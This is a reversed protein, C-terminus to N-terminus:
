AHPENDRVHHLRRRRQRSWREPRSGTLEGRDGNVVQQGGALGHHFPDEFLLSDALGLPSDDDSEGGIPEGIDGVVFGGVQENDARAATAFELGCEEPADRGVQDADCATGNEDNRAACSIRLTVPEPDGGGRCADSTSASAHASRCSRIPSLRRRPIFGSVVTHRRIRRCRQIPTSRSGATSTARTRCGSRTPSPGHCESRASSRTRALPTRYSRAGSSSHLARVVKNGEVLLTVGKHRYVEVHRGRAARMPKPASANELAALTHAGVIGDRELGHWAQFAIVAHHTRDNWAGTVGSSPLYGLTALRRQVGRPGAPAPGKPVLTPKTPLRIPKSLDHEDLPGKVALKSGIFTARSVGNVRIQVQKVGPVATVTYVIQAACAPRLSVDFASAPAEVRTLGVTAVGGKLNLSTLKTGQPLTTDIGAARESATPGALLAELAVRAVPKGPPAMRGRPAFERM